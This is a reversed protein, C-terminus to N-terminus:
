FETQHPYGKSELDPNQSNQTSLLAPSSLTNRYRTSFNLDTINKTVSILEPRSYTPYKGCSELSTSGCIFGDADRDSGAVLTYEGPTVNEFSFSYQGNVATASMQMVAEEESLVPDILLVYHTGTNSPLQSDSVQMQVTVLEIDGNSAVVTLTTTYLNEELGSRDITLTYEGLDTDDPPTVTLWSDNSNSRVSSISLNGGGSNVIYFFGSRSASGLDVTKPFAQLHPTLESIVQGQAAVVAKFANILGYGYKDDRGTSGLDDTIDGSSLLNDIQDPTLPKVSKMLAIVGSIHPAAMSTGEYHAYTNNIGITNHEGLLSFVGDPSSDGDRDRSLDGGPAVVDITSGFSSYRTVNRQMDVAGVSIVGENAAPFTLEDTGTNGSSAVITVGAARALNIANVIVTSQELGGLSMNIVDAKQPPTTGSDNELQAAYLIAQALDDVLGGGQGLVRLPMISTNWAVGTIGIGNNGVAAITGAVHTGHFSSNYQDNERDGPDDPNDDIGDGDQSISPDSIFDFGAVLNPAIDPHSLLVGTDIVAVIIEKSGTTIDWAAPLNIIPYHWQRPYFNDNPIANAHYIYNPEAYEVDARQRLAKVAAITKEKLSKIENFSLVTNNLDIKESSTDGLQTGVLATHNSVPTSKKATSQLKLKRQQRSNPTIDRLGLAGLSLPQIKSNHQAIVTDRYRVLIEGPKFNDYTSLRNSKFTSQNTVSSQASSLLYNSAGTNIRVEVFYIGETPATVSETFGTNLSDDVETQSRNYLYLDIDNPSIDSSQNPDDSDRTDAITLVLQQNARLSIEYFDSIDGSIYTQGTSNGQLAINVHGGLSIPSSLTQAQSFDDNLQYPDNSDNIDSDLASNDSVQITGSITISDHGCSDNLGQLTGECESQSGGCAALLFTLLTISFCHRRLPRLSLYFYNM